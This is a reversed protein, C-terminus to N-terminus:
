QGKDGTTSAKDSFETTPGRALTKEDPLSPSAPLTPKITSAAPHLWASFLGSSALDLKRVCGRDFSFAADGRCHEWTKDVLPSWLSWYFARPNPRFSSLTRSHEAARYSAPQELRSTFYARAWKM